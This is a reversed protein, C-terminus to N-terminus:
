KDKPNKINLWHMVIYDSKNVSEKIDSIIENIGNYYIVWKTTLISVVSCLTM